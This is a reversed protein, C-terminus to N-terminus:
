KERDKGKLKDFFFMAAIQLNLHELAKLCCLYWKVFTFNTMISLYHEHLNEKTFMQSLKFTIVGILLHNLTDWCTDLGVVIIDIFM